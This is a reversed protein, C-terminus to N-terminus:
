CPLTRGEKCCGVVFGVFFLFFSPSTLFLVVLFSFPGRRGIVGLGVESRQNEALASAHARGFKSWFKGFFRKALSKVNDSSYPVAPAEYDRKRKLEELHSCGLSELAGAMSVVGSLASYDGVGHVLEPM